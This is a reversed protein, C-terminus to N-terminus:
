VKEVSLTVVEGNINWEKAFKLTGESVSDALTEDCIEAANRNAIALIAENGQPISTGNDPAPTTDEAGADPLTTPTEVPAQTVPAQTVPTQVVPQQVQAAPINADVSGNITIETPLMLGLTIALVCFVAALLAEFVLDNKKM